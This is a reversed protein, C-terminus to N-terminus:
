YSKFNSELEHLAKTYERSAVSKNKTLIDIDVMSIITAQDAVDFRNIWHTHSCSISGKSNKVGQKIIELTISEDATLGQIQWLTKGPLRHVRYQTSPPPIDDGGGGDSDDGTGGTNQDDNDDGMIVILSLESKPSKPSTM